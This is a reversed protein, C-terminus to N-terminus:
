HKINHLFNDLRRFTNDLANKIESSFKSDAEMETLKLSLMERLYKIEEKKKLEPMGASIMLMFLNILRKGHKRIYNYAKCCYKEFVDYGTSGKGGMVYSMEETFVFKSRERQIGFKTKFNGLFHGFDIHFIHGTRTMMINGNHRDAIGLIYTAVCYGACSRTFNDLAKEKQEDGPNHEELFDKLTNKKLAGFKGGFDTQIKSTTESNVVVEIIGSQDGTAVVQYPKMRLDLGNELWITDMVRIMQLTLIDQRLDDGIKFIIPIFGSSAESNIMTLWLPMKKSDMVKCKDTKPASVEMSSDVPITCVNCVKAYNDAIMTKLYKEREQYGSKVELRTGFDSYTEVMIMEKLLDVRYSGCLMIFQELLLGFREATAKVHLQSRLAWFLVHGIHHPSKLSRELLLEGLSSFHNSEFSLAQILQPMYLAFDEDSLQNIRRTAYLRINEDPYDANLLALADEPQMNSWTNLVRYAERVQLPRTWNISKLFLPLALPLTKFHDRCIFLLRKEEKSLDELPDVLLIKELCALEEIQPRTKIIKNDEEEYPDDGLSGSISIHNGMLAAKNKITITSSRYPKTLRKYMNKLYSYDKLSWTVEETVFSEFQVFVRAYEICSNDSKDKLRETLYDSSIGWFEQMCVLREEIRYFPWLNLSFLGQRMIGKEDFITKACSGILFNEGTRSVAYINIGLRAEKPIESVKIPFNLWEMLRSSYNFPCYETRKFCDQLVTDGYLIMADFSLFYPSFPLRYENALEQTTTSSPGHNMYASNLSLPDSEKNSNVKQLKFKVVPISSRRELSGSSKRRGHNKERSKEKIKPVVVYGPEETGNNTANGRFAEAFLNYLNELGCLRIRFPWDCEGTFSTDSIKASSLLVDTHEQRTKGPDANNFLFVRPKMLRPPCPENDPTSATYFILFDQLSKVPEGESILSDPPMFLNKPVEVLNVTLYEMGRLAARVQRYALMPFNGTFYEKRGRVKFTLQMAPSSPQLKIRHDRYVQKVMYKMAENATSVLNVKFAVMKEMKNFFFSSRLRHKSGNESEPPSLRSEDLFNSIDVILKIETVSAFASSLERSTTYAPYPCAPYQVLYNWLARQRYNTCDASSFTWGTIDFGRLHELTTIESEIEKKAKESNDKDFETTHTELNYHFITRSLPDLAILIKKSM